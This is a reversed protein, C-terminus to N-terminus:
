SIIKISIAIAALALLCDQYSIAALTLLCVYTFLYLVEVTPRPIGPHQHDTARSSRPATSRGTASEDEFDEEEEEYEEEDWEDEDM